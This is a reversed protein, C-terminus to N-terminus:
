QRHKLAERLTELAVRRSDFGPDGEGPTAAGHFSVDVPQLQEFAVQKAPRAEIEPAAAEHPSGLLPLGLNWALRNRSLDVLFGPM